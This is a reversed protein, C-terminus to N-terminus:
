PGKLATIRLCTHGRFLFAERINEAAERISEGCVDTRCALSAGLPQGANGVNLLHAVVPDISHYRILM